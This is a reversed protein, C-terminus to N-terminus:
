GPDFHNNSRRRISLPLHLPSVLIHHSSEARPLAQSLAYRTRYGDTTSTHTPTRDSWGRCMRRVHFNNTAYRLQCCLKIKSSHLLHGRNKPVRHILMILTFFQNSTCWRAMAAYSYSLWDDKLGSSDHHTRSRNMWTIAPISAMPYFVQLPM